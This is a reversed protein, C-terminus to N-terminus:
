VIPKQYNRSCIRANAKECASTKTPQVPLEVSIEAAGRKGSERPPFPTGAGGLYQRALGCIFNPKLLDLKNGIEHRREDLTEGHIAVDHLMPSMADPLQIEHGTQTLTRDLYELISPSLVYCSAISLSSPAEGAQPQEILDELLHFIPHVAQGGQNRGFRASGPPGAVHGRSSFRGQDYQRLSCSRAPVSLVRANPIIGAELSEWLTVQM